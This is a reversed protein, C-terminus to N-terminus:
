LFRANELWIWPTPPGTRLPGLVQGHLHAVQALGMAVRTVVNAVAVGMALLMASIYVM